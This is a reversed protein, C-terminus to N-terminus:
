PLREWKQGAVLPPYQEYCDRCFFDSEQEQEQEEDRDIQVLLRHVRTMRSCCSCRGIGYVRPSVPEQDSCKPCFVKGTHDSQTVPEQDDDKLACCGSCLYSSM